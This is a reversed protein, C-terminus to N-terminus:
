SPKSVCSHWSFIDFPSPFASKIEFSFYIFSYRPFLHESLNDLQKYQQLSESWCWVYMRECMWATHECGCVTGASIFACAGFRILTSQVTCWLLLRALIVFAMVFIDLLSFWFLVFLHVCTQKRDPIKCAGWSNESFNFTVNSQASLARSHDLSAVTCSFLRLEQQRVARM